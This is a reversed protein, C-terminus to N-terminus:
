RIYYWILIYDNIELKSAFLCIVTYIISCFKLNYFIKLKWFNYKFYLFFLSFLSSKICKFFNEILFFNQEIYLDM